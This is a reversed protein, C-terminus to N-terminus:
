SFQEFNYTRMSDPNMDGFSQAMSTFTSIGAKDIGQAIPDSRDSFKSKAYSEYVSEGFGRAVSRGVQRIAPQAINSAAQVQQAIPRAVQQGTQRVAQRVGLQGAMRFGTMGMRNM